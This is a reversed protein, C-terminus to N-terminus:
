FDILSTAIAAFVNKYTCPGFSINSYSVKIDFDGTLTFKSTIGRLATMKNHTIKVKGNEFIADDSKIWKSSDIGNDFGDSYVVNGTIGRYNLNEWLDNLWSASVFSISLILFISFLIVNLERKRGRKMRTIFILLIYINKKIAFFFILEAYSGIGVFDKLPNQPV